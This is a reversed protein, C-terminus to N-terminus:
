KELSRYGLRGRTMTILMIVIVWILIVTYHFPGASNDSLLNSWANQSAHLLTVIILSGKTKNFVYVYICVAAISFASFWDIGVSRIFSDKIWFLPLHLIVEPIAILLTAALAGYRVQLHPLAFGRWAVEEMNFLSLFLIMAIFVLATQWLPSDAAPIVPMAGGFLMHLGIGGLIIFALLFVGVLYWRLGVRWILFRSLLERVGARGAIVASVLISAIAPSWGTLIELFEPIQTALIGQSYLSQPIMVSWALSFMIVYMSILPNRKIFATIGKEKSHIDTVTINSM